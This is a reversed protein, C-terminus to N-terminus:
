FLLSWLHFESTVVFCDIKLCICWCGIPQDLAPWRSVYGSPEELIKMDAAPKNTKEEM